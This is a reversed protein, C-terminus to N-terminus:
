AAGGTLPVELVLEQIENLQQPDIFSIKILLIHEAESLDDTKNLSSRDSSSSVDIREIKIRPEWKAISNIIMKRAELQLAFDNQDFVLRRLPTGFAPNMVREGPNTLLLCLLDSKIQNMGSQSYMFGIPTPRIPYPVGLFKKTTM